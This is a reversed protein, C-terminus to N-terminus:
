TVIPYQPTWPTYIPSDPTMRSLASPSSFTIDRCGRAQCPVKSILKNAGILHSRFYGQIVSLEGGPTELANERGVSGGNRGTWSWTLEECSKEWSLPARQSRIRRLIEPVTTLCMTSTWSLRLHM